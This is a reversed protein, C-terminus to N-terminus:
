PHPNHQPFSQDSTPSYTPHMYRQLLTPLTLQSIKNNQLLKQNSALKIKKIQNESCIHLVTFKTLKIAIFFKYTKIKNAM